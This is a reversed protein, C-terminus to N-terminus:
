RHANRWPLRFPQQVSHLFDHLLQNRYQACKQHGAGCRGYGGNGIIRNGTEELPDCTM